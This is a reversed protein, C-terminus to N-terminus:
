KSINVLYDIMEKREPADYHEGLIMYTDFIEIVIDKSEGSECLVSCLTLYVPEDPFEDRRKQYFKDFM